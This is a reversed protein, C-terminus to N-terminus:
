NVKKGDYGAIDKEPVLRLFESYSWSGNKGLYIKM